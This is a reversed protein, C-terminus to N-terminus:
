KIYQVWQEPYNVNAFKKFLPAIQEDKFGALQCGVRTLWFEMEPNNEVFTNFEKIYVEIVDLPLTRISDDKTPIAYSQGVLGFGNGWKAGFHRLAHQAAGAGHCGAANSGFVFIEDGVPATGDAHTKM